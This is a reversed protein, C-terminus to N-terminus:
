IHNRWFLTSPLASCIFFRILSAQICQVKSRTQYQCDSHDVSTTRKALLILRCWLTKCSWAEQSSGWCISWIHWDLATMRQPSIVDQNSGGPFKHHYSIMTEKLANRIMSFFSNQSITWVIVWCRCYSREGEFAWIILACSDCNGPGEWIKIMYGTRLPRFDLNMYWLWWMYLRWSGSSLLSVLFESMRCCKDRM